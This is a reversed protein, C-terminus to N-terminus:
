SINNTTRIGHGLRWYLTATVVGSLPLIVSTPDLLWSLLFWWYSETPPGSDPGSSTWGILTLAGLAATGLLLGLLCVKVSSMEWRSSLLFLCPLFLFITTSYSVLCGAILLMSFTLLPKDGLLGAMAFSFIMPMLLPALLLGRWSFRM